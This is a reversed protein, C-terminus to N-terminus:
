SALLVDLLRRALADKIALKPRGGATDDGTAYNRFKNPKGPNTLMANVKVFDKPQREMSRLERRRAYLKAAQQLPLAWVDDRM